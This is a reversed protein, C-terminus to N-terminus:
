RGGTEKGNKVVEEIVDLLERAAREASFRNRYSALACERMRGREEEPTELWRGVLRRTGELDDTEMYGAGDEVVPPAINVKDSVLVPTGSALAEAVAVGFNEGHSPLILAEASALAGWKVEGEIMGTRVVSGEPLAEGARAIRGAYADDSAPGALVLRLGRAAAEGFARVALDPGKRWHLRGLYLLFPRGDLAPFRELFARRGSEGDGPPSEAGITARRARCRYPRFSGDSLRMEQGTTFVVAGADRHVRYEAMWWYIQKKIHKLPHNRRFWPDLMGHTYVMYPTGHRRFASRAAHGAYQWCGEVIAVDFERALGELRGVLGPAYGYRGRGPVSLVPVDWGGLWSAGPDDQTLLTTRHGWAELVPTVTRLAAVPGGAAPDLTRILRLIKM